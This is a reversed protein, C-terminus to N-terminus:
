KAKKQLMETQLKILEEASVTGVRLDNFIVRYNGEALRWHMLVAGTDEPDVGDGYYEADKGEHVLYESFESIGALVESRGAAAGGLCYKMLLKSDEYLGEGTSHRGDLLQVCLITAVIIIAAAALKSIRLDIIINVTDLGGRHARLRDPIQNKIDEALAPRVPGTGKEALENLLNKLEAEEMM